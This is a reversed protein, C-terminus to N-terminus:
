RGGVLNSITHKGDASWKLALVATRHWHLQQFSVGKGKGHKPGRENQSINALLDDYIFIKGELTGVAIDLAGHFATSLNKSKQNPPAYSRLRVDISTIWEPCDIERWVYSLDKLSDPSLKECTGITVQSGSTVLLIRGNDLVRLSTVAQQYKLLTALDTKSAEPGGLLRHVTLFWNKESKRDATYVLSNVAETVSPNSTALFHIPTLTNWYELKQGEVWDWKEVIGSSTAIFLQNEKDSCIAFASVRDWRSIRLRRVLLSTSTAYINIATDCPILLYRCNCAM